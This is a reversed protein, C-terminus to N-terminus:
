SNIANLAAALNTLTCNTGPTIAGGNAINATALYLNNGVMFYSGSTINANAIMDNDPTTLKEIYLKTDARYECSAVSGTDSWINNAGLLTKVETPTLQYSLPERLPLTVKADGYAEIFDDMSTHGSDVVILRPSSSMSSINVAFNLDPIGTYHVSSGTYYNKFTDSVAPFGTSTPYSTRNMIGDYLIFQNRSESYVRTPIQSLTTITTDVTLMGTTVDLTGGYVTGASSFSINYTNGNYPEFDTLTGTESLTIGELRVYDGVACAGQNVRTIITIYETDDPLVFDNSLRTIGSGSNGLSGILTDANKYIAIYPNNGSTESHGTIAFTVSKGLLPKLQSRSLTFVCQRNNGATTTTTVVTGTSADIDASVNASTYTYGGFYNAKTRYVTAGTWGTIARVNSPSPDGSGAQVPTINVVLDKVPVGDAGDTFTAISGSTEEVVFAAMCEDIKEGVVAADAAMNEVTLTKDTNIATAQYVGGDAWESGNYYYWHGTLYGAENGTYVYIKASDTMAAATAAMRPAGALGMLENIRTNLGEDAAIRQSRETVIGNEVATTATQAAATATTAAGEAQAAYAAIQALLDEYPDPVDGTIGNSDFTVTRYLASKCVVDDVIYQLQVMGYGDVATDTDTIIWIANNDLRDTNTVLYPLEDGQRIFSIVFGGDGFTEVCETLNFILCRAKNEGKYGIFIPTIECPPTIPDVPAYDTAYINFM